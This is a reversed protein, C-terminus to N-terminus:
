QLPIEWVNVPEYKQQMEVKNKEVEGPLMNTCGHYISVGIGLYVASICLAEGFAKAEKGLSKLTRSLPTSENEDEPNLNDDLHM